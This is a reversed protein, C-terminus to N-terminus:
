WVVLFLALPGLHGTVPFLIWPTNTKYDTLSKTKQQMYHLKTVAKFQYTKNLIINNQTMSKVQKIRWNLIKSSIISKTGTQRQPKVQKEM